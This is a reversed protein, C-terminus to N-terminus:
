AAKLVAGKVEKKGGLVTEVKAALNKMGLEPILNQEIENILGALNQVAEERGTAVFENPLIFGLDRGLSVLEGFKKREAKHKEGREDTYQEIYPHNFIGSLTPAQNIEYNNTIIGNTILDRLAKAANYILMLKEKRREDEAKQEEPSRAETIRPREKEQETKVPPNTEM